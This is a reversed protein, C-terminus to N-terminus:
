FDLSIRGMLIRKRAFGLTRPDPEQFNLQQDFLNLIELEEAM